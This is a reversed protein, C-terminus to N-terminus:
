VAQLVALLREAYKDWTYDQARKRAAAAMRDRLQRNEVLEEIRNALAKADREPVIFGEIGDRVVSGAAETTIVPLGAALAEYTVSASGEALSPLVFIDAQVFENQIDARPVRGLFNLKETLQHKRVIESVGGAVRFEYNRHSLKQAATGLIHIGKRLDATGVFLVRGKTPSSTLSLWSEEIDYPVTYCKNKDVGLEELGREVFRSPVIFVDTLKCVKSFWVADDQIIQEPITPEIDFFEKREAQIIRHTAPSIYIDNVVKLNQDKAFELFDTGEGLMSFIHTAQGLGKGIMAQSIEQKFKALAQHQKLLSNGSLKQRVLYCLSAWDFSHVKGQINLPVRRNLLRSVASNRLPQPCFRDLAVGLGANACLDTYLAELMGAKELISPVVYGRRAGIQVVILRKTM